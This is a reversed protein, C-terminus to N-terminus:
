RTEMKVLAVIDAIKDKSVGQAAAIQALLDIQAQMQKQRRKAEWYIRNGIGIVAVLILFVMSAIGQLYGEM